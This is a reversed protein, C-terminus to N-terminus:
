AATALRVRPVHPVHSFGLGANEVCTKRTDMRGMIKIYSTETVGKKGHGLWIKILSEPILQADLHTCRFRRMAHWAVGSGELCRVRRRGNKDRWREATRLGVKELLPHLWDRNINRQQLPNGDRSKFLLTGTEKGAVYQRLVKALAEPVDVDRIGNKTKPAKLKGGYVSQRVHLVRCDESFASGHQCKRPKLSKCHPCGVSDRVKIALAEGIRLGLGGVILSLWYVVNKAKKVATKFAADLIVTMQEPTWAESNQDEPDVIPLDMYDHNWARKYVEEGNAKLSAVVLKPVKVIEVITKAALKKDRLKKVLSKMANNDVASLPLEGLVPNLHRQLYSRYGSATAESIPNRNRTQSEKLWIEAQQQFTVYGSLHEDVQAQITEQSNVGAQELVAIKRRERELPGMAGPGSIPCIILRKKKWDSEGPNRYRYVVTWNKRHKELTGTQGSFQAMTGIGKKARKEPTPVVIGRPQNPQCRRPQPGDSTPINRLAAEENVALLTSDEKLFNAHIPLISDTFPYPSHILLL